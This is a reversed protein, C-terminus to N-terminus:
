HISGYSILRSGPCCDTEMRRPYRIQHQPSLLVVIMYIMVNNLMQLISAAYGKDIFAQILFLNQDQATTPKWAGQIDLKINSVSLKHWLFNVDNHEPHPYRTYSAQFLFYKARTVLQQTNLLIRQEDGGGSIHWSTKLMSYPRNLTCM